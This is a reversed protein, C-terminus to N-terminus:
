LLREATIVPDKEQHQPDHREPSSQVNVNAALQATFYISRLSIYNVCSTRNIIQSSGGNLFFLM